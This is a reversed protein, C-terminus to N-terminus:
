NQNQPHEVVPLELLLVIVEVAVVAVLMQSSQPTEVAVGV